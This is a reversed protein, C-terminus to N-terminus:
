KLECAIHYTSDGDSLDGWRGGWNSWMFGWHQRGGRNNPEGSSWNTFTLIEKNDPDKWIGETEQDSLRIWIWYNDAKQHNKMIKAVTKIEALSSPFYMFGSILECIGKAQDFSNRQHTKLLILNKKTSLVARTIIDYLGLRGIPGAPCTQLCSKTETKVMPDM